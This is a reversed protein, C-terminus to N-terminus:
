HVHIPQGMYTRQNSVAKGIPELTVIGSSQSMPERRKQSIKDGEESNLPSDGAFDLPISAYDDWLSPSKSAEHVHEKKMLMANPEEIVAVEEQNSDDLLFEINPMSDTQTVYNFLDEDTFSNISNGFEPAYTEVESSQTLVVGSLTEHTPYGPSFDALGSLFSFGASYEPEFHGPLETDLYSQHLTNASGSFVGNQAGWSSPIYTSTTASGYDQNYEFPQTCQRKSERYFSHNDNMIPRKDGISLLPSLLTRDDQEM